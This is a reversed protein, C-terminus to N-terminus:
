NLFRKKLRNISAQQLDSAGNYADATKQLMDILQLQEQQDLQERLLPLLEDSVLSFFARNQTYEWAKEFMAQRDEVQLPDALLDLIVLKEQATVPSGTRVLQIMLIAAALRPDRVRALKSGVLKELSTKARRQLGKTDQNLEKAARVANNARLVFFCIAAAVALLGLLLHM